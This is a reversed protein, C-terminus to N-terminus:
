VHARGIKSVSALCEMWAEPDSSLLGALVARKKCLWSALQLDDVANLPLSPVDTTDAVMRLCNFPATATVLGDIYPPIMLQDQHLHPLYPSSPLMLSPAQCCLDLHRQPQLVNDSAPPAQLDQEFGEGTVDVDIRVTLVEWERHSM